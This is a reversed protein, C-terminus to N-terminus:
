FNSEYYIGEEGKKLFMGLSKPASQADIDIRVFRNSLDLNGNLPGISSVGDVSLDFPTVIMNSMNVNELSVQQPLDEAVLVDSAGMKTYYFISWIDINTAKAMPMGSIYVTPHGIDVGLIGTSIEEGSIVINSDQLKQELMYYLERKPAFFIIALPVLILIIIANKVM